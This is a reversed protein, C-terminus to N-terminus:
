GEPLLYFPFILARPDRTTKLEYKIEVMLMGDAKQDPVALVATLRIRPEWMQLARRVEAEVAACTAHDAPAFVYDHIRCGFEPRMVREGPYTSLIIYIAQSIETDINTLAVHNREDLHIPFAWGKGILKEFSMLQLGKITLWNKEVPAAVRYFTAASQVGSVILQDYGDSLRDRYDRRARM